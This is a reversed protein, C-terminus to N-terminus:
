AHASAVITGTLEGFGIGTSGPTECRGRMVVTDGDALFTRAEGSPLEVARSGGWTIELLSGWSGADAGSVTGTAFLDGPRTAAGNLTAHALLQPITWYLERANTRCVTLPELGHARM